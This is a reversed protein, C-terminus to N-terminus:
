HPLIDQSRHAVHTKHVVNVYGLVAIYRIYGRSAHNNCSVTNVAPKPVAFFNNLMIRKNTHTNKKKFACSRSLLIKNCVSIAFIINDEYTIIIQM